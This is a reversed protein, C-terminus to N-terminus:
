VNSDAEGAIGTLVEAPEGALVQTAQMAVRERGVRKRATELACALEHACEEIQQGRAQAEVKLTQARGDDDRYVAEGLAGILQRQERQLRRQLGRLRVVERSARSWSALSVWAFGARWRAENSVGVAARALRGEPLRRSASVFLAGFGVAVVLLLLGAVSHGSALFLVSLFFAVLAIAFLFVPPTLGFVRRESHVLRVQVLWPDELPLEDIERTDGGGLRTGCQACYRASEPAEAGCTACVPASIPVEMMRPMM